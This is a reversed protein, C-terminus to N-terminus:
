DRPLSSYASGSISRAKYTYNLIPFTKPLESPLIPLTIFFEIESRSVMSLSSIMRSVLKPRCFLKVSASGEYFEVFGVPYKASSSLLKEYDREIINVRFEQFPFEFYDEIATVKSQYYVSSSLTVEGCYIDLDEYMSAIYPTVELWFSQNDKLDEYSPSQNM